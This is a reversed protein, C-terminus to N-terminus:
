AVPWIEGTEDNIIFQGTDATILWAPVIAGEGFSGSVRHHYGAEVKDIRTCEANGNRVWALFGLLATGAQMIEAGDPALEVGTVFRGAITRLSDNNFTFETTCNFISAGKYAETVTVTEGEHGLTVIQSATELGMDNLLERVTRLTGNKNTIVNNNLRIEFDGASYFEATGRETNEYQYIVGHDTMITEGLVAQAIMAEAEGQRATRMTKISNNTIVVSPDITIGCSRIVDCAYEITLREIRMNATTDIVIVAGFFINILLLIVIAITKIRSVGM